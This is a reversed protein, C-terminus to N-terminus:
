NKQLMNKKCCCLLVLVEFCYAMLVDSMLHRHVSEEYKRLEKVSSTNKDKKVCRLRKVCEYWKTFKKDSSYYYHGPSVPSKTRIGELVKLESAISNVWKMPEVVSEGTIVLACSFMKRESDYLAFCVNGILYDM